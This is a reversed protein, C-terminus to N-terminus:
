GSIQRREDSNIIRSSNNDCKLAAAAPPASPADDGGERRGEGWEVVDETELKQEDKRGDGWKTDDCPLLNIDVTDSSLLKCVM